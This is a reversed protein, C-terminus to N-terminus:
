QAEAIVAVSLYKIEAKEFLTEIAIELTAGTTSVDDVLLIHKDKLSNKNTITFASTMNEWREEKTKKTQTKTDKTKILTDLVVPIELREGLGKAFYESQNYGRKRQRKLHLPIPIILEPFKEFGTEKLVQAYWKGLLAGVEPNNEYKLSHLIRQTKGKKSFFLYAFAYEVPYKINLKKWLPNETYLHYDTTPLNMQCHLCIQEENKVLSNDCTLCTNPFILNVFDQWIEAINIKNKM